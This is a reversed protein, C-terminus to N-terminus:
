FYFWFNNLPKLFSVGSVPPKQQHNSSCFAIIVSDDSLWIKCVRFQFPFTDVLTLFQCMWKILIILSRWIILPLGTALPDGPEPPPAATFNTANQCSAEQSREWFLSKRTLLSNWIWKDALSRLIPIVNWKKWNQISLPIYKNRFFIFYM